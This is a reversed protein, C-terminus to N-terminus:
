RYSNHTPEFLEEAADRVMSFHEINYHGHLIKNHHNIIQEASLVANNKTSHGDGVLSVDMGNITATRVASDVCHETACGM